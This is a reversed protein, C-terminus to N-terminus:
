ENEEKKISSELTKLNAQRTTMVVEMGKIIGSVVCYPIGAVFPLFWIMSGTDWYIALNNSFFDSTHVGFMILPSSLFFICLMLKLKKGKTMISVLLGGLAVIWMDVYLFKLLGYEGEVEFLDTFKIQDSAYKTEYSAYNATFLVIVTVLTFIAAAIWSFAELKEKKGRLNFLYNKEDQIIKDYNIDM